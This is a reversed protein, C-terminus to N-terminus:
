CVASAALRLARARAKSDIELTWPALSSLLVHTRVVAVLEELQMLGRGLVLHELLARTPYRAAVHYWVVRRQLPRQRQLDLLHGALDLLRVLTELLRLVLEQVLLRPVLALRPLIWHALHVLSARLIRDLFPVLIRKSVLLGLFPSSARPM